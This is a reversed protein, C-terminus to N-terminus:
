KAIARLGIAVQFLYLWKGKAKLRDRAAKALRLNFLRNRM